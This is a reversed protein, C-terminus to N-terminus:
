VMAQQGAERNFSALLCSPVDHRPVTLTEDGVRRCGTRELVFCFKEALIEKRVLLWLESQFERVHM